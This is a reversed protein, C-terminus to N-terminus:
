YIGGEAHFRTGDTSGYVIQTFGQEFYVKYVMQNNTTHQGQEIEVVDSVDAPFNNAAAEAAVNQWDRHTQPM